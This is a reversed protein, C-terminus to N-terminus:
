KNLDSKYEGKIPFAKNTHINPRVLANLALSTEQM